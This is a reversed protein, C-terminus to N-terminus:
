PDPFRIARSNTESEWASILAISVDLAEAVRRQPISRNNRLARLRRALGVQGGAPESAATM